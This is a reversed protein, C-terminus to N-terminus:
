RRARDGGRRVADRNRPRGPGEVAAFPPPPERGNRPKAAWSGVGSRRVARRRERRPRGARVPGPATRLPCGAVEIHAASHHTSASRHVRNRHRRRADGRRLPPRVPTVKGDCSQAAGFSTAFAKRRLVRRPDTSDARPEGALGTAGVIAAAPAGLTLKTTGAWLSSAPSGRV